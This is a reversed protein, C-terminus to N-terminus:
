TDERMKQAVRMKASRARPNNRCEEASPTVPKKTLSILQPQTLQQPPAYRSVVPPRAHSQIFQKVVRDELSHFSVVVLLGGPKLLDLSAELAQALQELERNVAIRLAQFTRTAPDIGDRSAPVVQRVLTALQQTTEFPSVARAECIARALRRAHREEGFEKLILTLDKETITRLLDAATQGHQSMRMDLPGDQRFSFGRHAQDLQPSSVGLDFVIGDFRIDQPGFYEQIDAFALSAFQFRQPMSEQLSHAIRGADPDRDVAYVQCNAANLIARSYGGLGFTCDLYRADNQPKLHSLVDQLMVPIHSPHSMAALGKVALTTTAIAYSATSPIM